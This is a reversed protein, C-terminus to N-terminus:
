LSNVGGVGQSELSPSFDAAGHPYVGHLGKSM